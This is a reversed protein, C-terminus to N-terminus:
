KRTEQELEDELAGLMRKLYQLGNNIEQDTDQGRKQQAQCVAKLVKDRISNMADFQKVTAVFKSGTAIENLQDLNYNAVGVASILVNNSKINQSPIQVNDSAQGDTVLIIVKQVGKRGGNALDRYVRTLAEGTM